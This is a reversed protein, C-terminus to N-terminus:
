IRVDLRSQDSKDVAWTRSEIAMSPSGRSSFGGPGARSTTGSRWADQSNGNSGGSHSDLTSNSQGSTAVRIDLHQNPGLSEHIQPISDAIVKALEPHDLSIQASLSSRSVSTNISINGFDASHIGVHIQSQHLNQILRATNILEQVQTPAHLTQGDPLSGMVPGSSTSEPHGASATASQAQPHSPLVTGSAGVAPATPGTAIAPVNGPALNSTSNGFGEGSNPRHQGAAAAVHSLQGPADKAGKADAPATPVGDSIGPTAANAGMSSKAAPSGAQQPANLAATSVLLNSAGEGSQNTPNQQSGDLFTPHKAPALVSNLFGDVGGQQELAGHSKGVLPTSDQPPAQAIPSECDAAQSARNSGSKGNPLIMEGFGSVPLESHEGAPLTSAGPAPVGPLPTCANKQVGAATGSESQLLGPFLVQLESSVSGMRLPAQMSSGSGSEKDAKRSLHTTGPASCAPSREASANQLSGSSNMENNAVPAAQVIPDSSTPIQLMTADPPGGAASPAESQEPVAPCLPAVPATLPKPPQATAQQAPAAGASEVSKHSRRESRNRSSEDKESRGAARSVSHLADHFSAGPAEGAGAPASAAAKAPALVHAAIALALSM